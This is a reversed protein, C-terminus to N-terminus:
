RALSSNLYGPEETVERVLHPALWEPIRPQMSPDPLEAEALVLDRDLFEDIEWVLPGDPVLYRRKRLRRGETLPWMTEFVERTTEEEVELRAVGIGAKITRYWREADGERVRRLRERVRQGPLYGQDMELSKVGDAHVAPPLAVLLYKREIEVERPAAPLLRRVLAEVGNLLSDAGGGLWDGALIAFRADKEAQVRAALALLGPTPDRRRQRRVGERGMAAIAGRRVAKSARRGQEAGAEEAAEAITSSLVDADHMEGLLDQLAKLQDVLAAADPAQDAVTELAYRLRKASLRSAHAEAQDDVSHISGLAQRLDTGLRAFLNACAAGLTPSDPDPAAIRRLLLGRLGTELRTFGRELERDLKARAKQEAKELRTRLWVLGSRERPSLGERAARLWALQVELDRARGTTDALDRLRRRTKGPLGLLDRHARLLSRLRRLSVRFDHLAEGDAGTVLRERPPAAADLLVLARAALAPGAPMDFAGTHDTM